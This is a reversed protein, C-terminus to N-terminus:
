PTVSSSGMWAFVSLATAQRRFRWCVNGVYEPERCDPFALRRVSSHVGDAGIILGAIGAGVILIRM